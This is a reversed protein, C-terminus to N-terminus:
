TGGLEEKFSIETDDDNLLVLNHLNGGARCYDKGGDIFISGCQCSVFDHRHKSEIKSGCNRCMARNKTCNSM